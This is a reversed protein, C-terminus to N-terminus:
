SIRGIACAMEHGNLFGMQTRCPGAESEQRMKGTWCGVEM